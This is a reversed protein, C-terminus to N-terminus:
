HGWKRERGRLLFCLAVPGTTRPPLFSSWSSAVAFWLWMCNWLECFVTYMQEGCFSMSWLLLIIKKILQLTGEERWFYIKKTGEHFMFIVSFYDKLYKRGTRWQDSDMQQTNQNTDWPSAAETRMKEGDVLMRGLSISWGDDMWVNWSKENTTIDWLGASSRM